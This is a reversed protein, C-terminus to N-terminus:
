RARVSAAPLTAVSRGSGFSDTALERNQRHGLLRATAGNGVDREDFRVHLEGADPERVLRMSEGVPPRMPPQSQSQEATLCAALSVRGQQPETVCLAVKRPDVDAERVTVLRLNTTVVSWAM